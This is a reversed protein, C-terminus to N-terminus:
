PLLEDLDLLTRMFVRAGDLLQAPEVSEEPCHSRGDRCPATPQSRTLPQMALGVGLAQLENACADVLAQPFSDLIASATNM